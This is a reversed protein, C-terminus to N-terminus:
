SAQESQVGSELGPREYDRRAPLPEREAFGRAEVTARSPQAFTRLRVRFTTGRSVESDVSLEGGHAAIIGQCVALGLGTGTGVPRTTFFPDFIRDLHEAAIGCGTDSVEVRVWGEEERASLRITNWEVRGPEIAHAANLLLNLLVQCLRGGNGLVAPVSDVELVLGARPRILHMAMKVASRAVAGLDVPGTDLSDPRALNQLEKVIVRVREAGEGAEALAAQLELRQRASLGGDVKDLQGAVFQLNAIIFALPNNIEHGVGAALQGVSALRDAFLLRSQTAQLQQLSETLKANARELETTRERVTQELRANDSRIERGVAEAELRVRQQREALTDRLERAMCNFARALAGCEDRSGEPLLCDFDGHGIREAGEVIARFSRQLPVVIALALGGVLLLAALPILGGMWRARDFALTSEQLLEATEQQEAEWAQLIEPEPERAFVHLAAHLRWALDETGTAHLGAETDRLWRRYGEALLRFRELEADPSDEAARAEDRALQALRVFDGDAHRLAEERVVVTDQKAIATDALGHLYHTANARLGLLLEAQRQAALARDRTRRGQHAGLWVLASMGMVLGIATVAFLLVKTRVTM